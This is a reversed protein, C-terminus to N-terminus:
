CSKTSISTSNLGNATILPEYYSRVNEVCYKGKFWNQLFIIEQYLSMEPYKKETLGVCNSKNLRSHTPCPPSSWIFDYLKYNKLLFDHADDIIMEDKPFFDCYIKAIDPNIEVATIDHSDGWLRRNGGLGSYLNLIKM